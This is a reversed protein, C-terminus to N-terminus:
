DNRGNPNLVRERLEQLAEDIAENARGAIGQILTQGASSTLWKKANERAEAWVEGAIERCHTQAADRNDKWWRDVAERAKERMVSKLERVFEDTLWRTSATFTIVMRDNIVEIKADM